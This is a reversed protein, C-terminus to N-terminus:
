VVDFPRRQVYLAARRAFQLTRLPRLSGNVRIPVVEMGPMSQADSRTLITVRAGLDALHRAFQLTSTEAGGRWPEIREIVLAVSIANMLDLRGSRGRTCGERGPERAPAASGKRCPAAHPAAGAAGAPAARAAPIDEQGFVHR